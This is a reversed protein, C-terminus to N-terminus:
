RPGSRTSTPARKDALGIETRLGRVRDVLRDRLRRFGEDDLGAPDDLQWDRLERGTLAVPCSADDLCGMNIRVSARDMMEPTLLAPPHSPASLGIEGLMRETRPNPREAPRTGASMARWGPPPQANFIAEAMLSRCANEVCIFLVWREAPESM